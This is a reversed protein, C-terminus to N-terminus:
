WSSSGRGWFRSSICPAVLPGAQSTSTSSTSCAHLAARQWRGRGRWFFLSARVQPADSNLGLARLYFRASEEYEGLNAYSIGMNTWARMYNPKLDLAKQYAGIADASRSHNAQLPLRPPRPTPPLSGAAAVAARSALRGLPLERACQGAALPPRAPPATRGAAARQCGAAGLHRVMTAGLKNWLSYDQPRMALAAEFAAVQPLAREACTLV